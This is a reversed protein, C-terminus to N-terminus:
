YSEFNVKAIDTIGIKWKQGNDFDAEALFCKVNKVRWAVAAKRQQSVTAARRQRM